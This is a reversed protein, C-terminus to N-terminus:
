DNKEIEELCNKLAYMITIDLVSIDDPKNEKRYEYKLIESRLASSLKIPELPNGIDDLYQMEFKDLKALRQIISERIMEERNCNIPIGKVVEICEELTVNDIIEQYAKYAEIRDEINM